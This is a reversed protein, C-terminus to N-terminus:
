WVEINTYSYVWGLIEINPLEDKTVIEDNFDKNESSIRLGGDPRNYLYRTRILVGHRFVYIKGDRVEKKSMDALCLAEKSIKPIMSDSDNVYCATDDISANAILPTDCDVNITKDTKELITSSNNVLIKYIYVDFSSNDIDKRNFEEFEEILNDVREQEEDQLQYLKLLWEPEELEDTIDLSLEILYDIDYNLSPDLNLKDIMSERDKEKMANMFDGADDIDAYTTVYDEGTMIWYPSTKLLSALRVLYLDQPSSSGNIWTSVAGKSAGTGKVIDVQRLNMEKLRKKIRKGMDKKKDNKMRLRM